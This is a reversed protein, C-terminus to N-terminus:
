LLLASGQSARPYLVVSLQREGMEETPRLDMLQRGVQAPPELVQGPSGEEASRHRAAPVRGTSGGCGQQFRGEFLNIGQCASCISRAFIVGHVTADLLRRRTVALFLQHNKWGHVSRKYLRERLGLLTCVEVSCGEVFSDDM